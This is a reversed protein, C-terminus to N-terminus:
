RRGADLDATPVSGAKPEVQAAVGLAQRLESAVWRLEAEDRGRLVGKKGGRTLQIQLELISVDNVKMGSDGACIAAIEGREWQWTKAGFLGHQEVRLGGSEAVLRARRRGLNLSIALMALGILWFGAIFLWVVEPVHHKETTWWGVTFVVMFLCWFISFTFLGRTGRGLGAPPVELSLGSSHSEAKIM